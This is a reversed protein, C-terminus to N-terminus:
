NLISRLYLLLVLAVFRKPFFMLFDEHVQNLVANKSIVGFGCDMFTLFLLSLKM